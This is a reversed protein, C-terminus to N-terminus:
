TDTPSKTGNNVHKKKSMRKGQESLSKINNREKEVSGSHTLEVPVNSDKVPTSKISDQDVTTVAQEKRAHSKPPNRANDFWKHVRMFSIGFEKALDEKVSRSPFRNEVFVGRFKEVATKPLRSTASQKASVSGGCQQLQQSVSVKTPSKFDLPLIQEQTDGDHHKEKIAVTREGNEKEGKDTKCLTTKSITIDKPSKVDPANAKKKTASLNKRQKGKSVSSNGQEMNVLRGKKSKKGLGWEQSVSVKTPSKFDLPLIQAQTDGEHHKEKIAVTCQGNEKEGKDTKCLTTKSTTIDEPSKVDPANAKKKTVSLNKRQKAKSVSSNGQEMNVLRGKKSKKGLGWEEDDESMSKDSADLEMNVLRGNKSKKGLGWEEDDESMSKDSADLGYLEDHLKKYDVEQRHRKGTVPLPINDKEDLDSIKPLESIGLALAKKDRAMKSNKKGSEVLYKSFHESDSSDDSDSGEDDSSSDSSNGANSTGSEESSSAELQSGDPLEISDPNYDDDETDDSPMDELGLPTGDGVATAAANAFFNEWSDELEFDTDLYDNVLDVCDLKCDCAPCLWGEDGPPIDETALPPELCKQHFGRDCMGDCLVIDNDPFLDKSKCKACFIDESNVQGETDFATEELSGELCLSHLQHLAERIQLKCQLIKSAAKQLEREPRIKEQSQGKWGESSYADIMNQEFGIRLLFYKVRKRIRSLEDHQVRTEKKHKKRREKSKEASNELSHSESKPPIKENKNSRPRLIRNGNSLSRLVYKKGVSRKSKRAKTASRSSKRNVNKQVEPDESESHNNEIKAAAKSDNKDGDSLNEQMETKQRRKRAPTSSSLSSSKEKSERVAELTECTGGNVLISKKRSKETERPVKKTENPTKHTKDRAMEM